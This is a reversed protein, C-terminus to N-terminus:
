ADRIRLPAIGFLGRVDKTPMNGRNWQFPFPIHAPEMVDGEASKNEPDEQAYKQADAPAKSPAGRHQFAFVM